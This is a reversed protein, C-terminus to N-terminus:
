LGIVMTGLLIIKALMILLLSRRTSRTNGLIELLTDRVDMLQRFGIYNGNYNTNRNSYYRNNQGGNKENRGRNHNSHNQRSKTLNNAIMTGVEKSEVQAHVREFDVLKDHLEEMTILTDRARIVICIEKFDNSLGNLAFIVLDDELFKSQAMALEDSMCKVLNMYEGVSRGGQTINTLRQKLAMVRSQTRSAYHTFLKTM